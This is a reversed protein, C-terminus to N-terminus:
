TRYSFPRYRLTRCLVAMEPILEVISTSGLCEYDGGSHEDLSRETLGGINFQTLARPQSLSAQILRVQGLKVQNVGLQFNYHPIRVGSTPLKTWPIAASSIRASKIAASHPQITMGKCSVPHLDQEQLAYELLYYEQSQM